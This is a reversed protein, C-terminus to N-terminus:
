QSFESAHMEVIELAHAAKLHEAYNWTDTPKACFRCLANREGRPLSTRAKGAIIAARHGLEATEIIAAKGGQGHGLEAAANFLIELSHGSLRVAIERITRRKADESIEATWHPM